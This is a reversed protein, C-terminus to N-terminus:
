EEALARNKGSVSIQTGLLTSSSLNSHCFKGSRSPTPLTVFPSHMQEGTAQQPDPKRQLRQSSYSVTNTPPFLLSPPLRAPSSPVLTHQRPESGRKPGCCSHRGQPPRPRKTLQWLLFLPEQLGPCGDSCLWVSRNNSAFARSLWLSVAGSPNLAGWPVLTPDQGSCISSM